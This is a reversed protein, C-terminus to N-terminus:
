PKINKLSTNSSRFLNKMRSIIRDKDFVISPPAPKDEDVFQPDVRVEDGDFYLYFEHQIEDKIQDPISDLTNNDTDHINDSTQGNKQNFFVM